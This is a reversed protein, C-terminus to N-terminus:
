KPTSPQKDDMRVWLWALLPAFIILCGPQVVQFWSSPFAFGFMENLTQEEAFLTLTSGAQEFSSWFVCAALFLILVVWLRKREEPTWNGLILLGAFSVIVTFLLALGFADSLGIATIEILGSLHLGAVVVVLAAVMGGYKSLAARSEASSPAAVPFTKSGIWFQILGAIMGIAALGFGWHWNIKQGVYGCVIPAITAGLNIGMYFVSFGADRRKDNAEYLSGVLASVNPKLLGTGLVILVLGFYFTNVAPLALFIHGCAILIGGYFVAFRAGLSRDAIWGGPLSMLYVMGTYLGYVAGAKAKDFGLGGSEVPAVMFLILLARMGYYSFREWMETFFLTSLGRPHGFFGIDQQAATM